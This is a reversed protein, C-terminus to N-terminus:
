IMHSIKITNIYQNFRKTWGDTRHRYKNGQFGSKRSRPESFTFDFSFFQIISPCQYMSEITNNLLCQAGRHPIHTTSTHELIYIYIYIYVCVCMCTSTHTHTHTHTPTNHLFTRWCSQHKDTRRDTRTNVLGRRVIIYQAMAIPSFQHNPKM